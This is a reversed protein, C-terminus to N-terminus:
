LPLASFIRVVAHCDGHLAGLSSQKKRILGVGQGRQFDFLREQPRVQSGPFLEETKGFIEAAINATKRNTSNRVGKERNKIADNGEAM